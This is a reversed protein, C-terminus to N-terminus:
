KYVKKLTFFKYNLNHTKKLKRIVYVAYIISVIGVCLNSIFMAYGLSEVGFTTFHVFFLVVPIRFIFIRMMNIFLSMVTHGFGYLLGLVSTSISLAITALMESKFIAEIENAFAVDNKAFLGILQDMYLYVLILSIISYIVNIVLTAKFTDIARNINKNGINQSIITSEGSQFGQPVITIMGGMQNSVGLAGVATPSYISGLTNVYVKGFSFAIKEFMIPFSLTFIDSIIKFKFKTTKINMKFPNSKNFIMHFTAFLTMSFHSVFTSVAVSIVGYKLIVVFIYTLLLKLVIVGINLNMVSKTNGRAKEITMYIQNIFMCIVSMVEIRFYLTGVDLVEKPVGSLTLILEAFPVMSIFILGSLFLSFLILNIIYEKTKNFDGQGYYKAILIGGGVSLGAGISSLMFQLSSVYSVMSFIEKGLDAVILSNFFNFFQNILNYLAVPASIILITKYLEGNLIM